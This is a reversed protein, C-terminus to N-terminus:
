WVPQNMSRPQGPLLYWPQIWTSIWIGVNEQHRDFLGVRNNRYSQRRASLGFVRLVQHALSHFICQYNPRIVKCSHLYSMQPRELTVDYPFRHKMPFLSWSIIGVGSRTLPVRCRTLASIATYKFPTLLLLSFLFSSWKRSLSGRLVQIKLIVNM